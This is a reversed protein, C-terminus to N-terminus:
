YSGVLFTNTHIKGTNKDGVIRSISEPGSSDFYPLSCNLQDKKGTM